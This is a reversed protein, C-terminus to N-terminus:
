ASSFNDYFLGTYTNIYQNSITELNWHEKAFSQNLYGLGDKSKERGKIIGQDLSSLDNSDFVPNGTAKLIEGVNGVDPGLVVKGYSYALVLNGSNLIEKRPIFVLDAGQFYFPIEDEEIFSNTLRFTDDRDLLFQRVEWLIRKRWNRYTPKYEWRPVVIKISKDSSNQKLAYILDQEEKSRIRGFVLIIFNKKEFDWGLRSLAVKKQPLIKPIDYKHHPIIVQKQKSSFNYRKAYEDKSYSGLHVVADALSFFDNYFAYFAERDFHPLLNHRTIIIRTTRKWKRLINIINRAKETTPPKWNTLLEPWHIHIIDYDDNPSFFLDIDVKLSIKDKLGEALLNIFPNGDDEKAVMLVNLM